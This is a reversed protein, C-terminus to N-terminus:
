DVIYVLEFTTANYMKRANDTIEMIKQSVFDQPFELQM